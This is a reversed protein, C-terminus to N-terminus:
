LPVSTPFHPDGEEVIRLAVCAVQLAEREIEDRPAGELLAKALEGVEEMLAPLLYRNTPFKMRAALVEAGVAGLTLPELENKM